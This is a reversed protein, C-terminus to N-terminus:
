QGASDDEAMEFLGRYFRRLYPPMLSTDGMTGSALGAFMEWDNRDVLMGPWGDPTGHVYGYALKQVRAYRRDPEASARIVADILDDKQTLRRDHWWAHSLEHVAAEDQATLLRVKREGPIWWGGGSTSARDEVEFGIDQRLWRAAEASFHYRAMIRERFQELWADDAPQGTQGLPQTLSRFYNRLGRRVGAWFRRLAQGWSSM